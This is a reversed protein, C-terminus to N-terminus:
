CSHMLMFYTSGSIANPLSNVAGHISHVESLPLSLIRVVSPDDMWVLKRLNVGFRQQLPLVIFCAFLHDGYSVATFQELLSSYRLPYCTIYLDRM